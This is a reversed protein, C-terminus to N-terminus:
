LRRRRNRGSPKARASMGLAAQLLEIAEVQGSVAVEHLKRVEFRRLLDLIVNNGGSQGSLRKTLAYIITRRMEPELASPNGFNREDEDSECEVEATGLAIGSRKGAPPAPVQPRTVSGAGELVAALLRLKKAASGIEAATRWQFRLTLEFDEVTGTGLETCGAPATKASGSGRVAAM